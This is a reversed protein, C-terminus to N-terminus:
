INEHECNDTQRGYTWVCKILNQVRIMGNISTQECYIEDLTVFRWEKRTPFKLGHRTSDLRKDGTVCCKNLSTIYCPGVKDVKTGPQPRLYTEVGRNRLILKM